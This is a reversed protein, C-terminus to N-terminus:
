STSAPRACRGSTADAAGPETVEVVSGPLGLDGMLEVLRKLKRSSRRRSRRRRVRGAPDRGARRTVFRTSSRRPVGPNDRALEIMTRDVLEVATPSSSSSTSRRTWRRTSADPLPLRRAGQAAAAALAQPAAARLLRAHRRLRGAPAGPQAPARRSCTSTTAASAACCRRSLAREIEDRKARRSARAGQRALDRYARRGRTGLDGAGRRLASAHRRGAGRRDRARQAGHQRLPDLALRLLQQRGHRRADGARSTSVDVPIGCATRSAAVREAPRARRRAAVTVRARTRTSRSRRENLYKRTTSSWRRASPRAASRPAAAARCCRCARRSARDAARRARRGRHAAGGRRGARDPLDVRRDLLPRALRRRVARRGRIERKLRQALASDGVKPHFALTFAQQPPRDM